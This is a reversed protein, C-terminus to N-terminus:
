MKCLGNNPQLGEESYHRYERVWMGVTSEAINFGISILSRSYEKELHLQDVKLKFELSFVRRKRKKSKGTRSSKRRGKM